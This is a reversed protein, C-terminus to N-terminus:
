LAFLVEPFGFLLLEKVLDELSFAEEEVNAGIAAVLDLQRRVEHKIKYLPEEDPIWDTILGYPNERCYGAVRKIGAMYCLMANPLPNQSYVNFLVAADYDGEQLLNVLALVEDSKNDAGIKEWPLNCTIVEDVEPIFDAILAGAKSTLLTIKRGPVAEKLAKIAPSTMILDGMNDPRICLINKFNKWDSTNM